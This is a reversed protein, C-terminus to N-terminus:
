NLEIYTNYFDSVRKTDNNFTKFMSPPIFDQKTVLAKKYVLTNGVQKIELTFSYYQNDINIPEPLKSAKQGPKLNVTTTGRINMKSGFDYDIKRITDFNFNSFYYDYELNIYKKGNATFAHNDIALEYKVEADIDRNTLDSSSINKANISLKENTLYNFLAENKHQSKLLNYDRLFEIKSEGKFTKKGKVMLTNNNIDITETVAEENHEPGFEPITELLYGDGNEVICKRGQIRNAYDGLSCYTETADLFLFKNNLKVACIAHNDVPLGPIDYSFNLHRTGIWVMRADFGLVKLMNKSLNAMGKCDGFKKAFVSSCEDPKFGALGDEFAIYHVNDQIWYFVTRIKEEDTKCNKVLDKTFKAFKATDNQLTGTVLKYWKYMDDTSNFINKKGKETTITKYHFYLMPYNYSAGRGGKYRQMPKLNKFTYVIYKSKKKVKKKKSKTGADADDEEDDGSKDLEEVEEKKYELGEFNKEIIDFEMWDPKAIKIIKKETYHDELVYILSNFKADRCTEFYRANVRTGRIPLSMDYVLYRSDTKFYNGDEDKEKNKSLDTTKDDIKFSFNKASTMSNYEVVFPENVFDKLTTYEYEYKSTTFVEGDPVPNETLDDESNGTITYTINSFDGKLLKEMNRKLEAANSQADKEKKAKKKKANEAMKKFANSDYKENQEFRMTIKIENNLINEDPYEKALKGAEKISFVTAKANEEGYYIYRSEYYAPIHIKPSSCAAIALLVLIQPIRKIM